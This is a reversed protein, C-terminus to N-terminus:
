RRIPVVIEDPHAVNLEKRIMEDAMDPDVHRPDLLQVRNAIRSREAEVVRLTARSDHLQRSYDGWALLGNPGLVAYGLLVGLIGVAIAPGLALSLLMRLNALQAM